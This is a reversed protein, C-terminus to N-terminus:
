ISLNNLPRQGNKKSKMRLSPQWELQTTGKEQRKIGPLSSTCDYGDEGKYMKFQQVDVWVAYKEETKQVSILLYTTGRFEEPLSNEGRLHVRILPEGIICSHL